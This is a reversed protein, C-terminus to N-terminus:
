EDGQQEELCLDEFSGLDDEDGVKLSRIVKKKEALSTYECRAWPHDYRRGASKCIFCYPKPTPRYKRGFGRQFGRSKPRSRNGASTYSRAVHIDEEESCSDEFYSQQRRPRLNVRDARLEEERIEELFSDLADAIQPQLDKLTSRQLDYSFTRQVMAPIKPHILEMWRLVALREVTPSMDESRNPTVGNHKLKSDKQLLNDQLHALIRQYLRQPRENEERTISLLKMFQVESQGFRYYERISSWVNEISTCNREITTALFPPAYSSIFGLMSNLEGAKEEAGTGTFGRKPNQSTLVQWTVPHDEKLFQKFEDEKRLNYLITNKWSSFSSFSEEETLKWPKAGRSM